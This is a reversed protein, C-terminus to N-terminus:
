GNSVEILGYRIALRTLGVMGAVGLKNLIHLKHTHVTKPSLCMIDAIESSSKEQLMLMLIEFERRSLADFPSFRKTGKRPPSGAVDDGVYCQGQMVTRVAQNLTRAASSKDVIARVGLEHFRHRLESAYASLIIIRAADDRSLIRKISEVGGLGPMSIDMLVVDPRYQMYDRWAHDGDVSEVVIEMDQELELLQRFGKRVLEHDDVLQVRIM